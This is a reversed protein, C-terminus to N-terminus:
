NEKVWVYANKKLDSIWEEYQAAIKKQFLDNRIKAYVEKIDPMRPAVREELLFIHYGTGDAVIDSLEGAKLSFIEKDFEKGFQGKYIVGMEGGDQANPANSYQTALAAFDEHKKLKEYVTQALLKSARRDREKTIAIFIHRIKVGEPFMIEKAHTAYYENVEQPPVNVRSTVEMDVFRKLMLQKRYKEKLDAITVNQDKLAKEFEENSDFRTKVENIIEEIEASKIKTLHDAVKKYYQKEKDSMKSDESTSKAITKDMEQQILQEEVIREVGKQRADNLKTRLEEGKYMQQYQAYVPGLFKELDSQTIVKDNVIAVIEDKAWARQPTFSGALAVCIAIFLLIKETTRM